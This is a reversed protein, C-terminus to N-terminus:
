QIKCMIVCDRGTDYFKEDIASFMEDALANAWPKELVKQERAAFGSFRDTISVTKIEKSLM